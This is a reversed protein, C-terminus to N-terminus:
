VRPRPSQLSEISCPLGFAPSKLTPYSSPRSSPRNSPHLHSCCAVFNKSTVHNRVTVRSRPYAQALSHEGFLMCEQNYIPAFRRKALLVNVSLALHPGSYTTVQSLHLDGPERERESRFNSYRALKAEGGDRAWAWCVHFFHKIRLPTRGPVAIPEM